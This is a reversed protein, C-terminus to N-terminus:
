ESTNGVGARDFLVTKLQNYFTDSLTRPLLRLIIIVTTKYLAGELYDVRSRQLLLSVMTTRDDFQPTSVVIQESAVGLGLAAAAVRSHQELEGSGFAAGFNESLVTAAKHKKTKASKTSKSGTPTESVSLLRQPDLDSKEASSLSFVNAIVLPALDGSDESFNSPDLMPGTSSTKGAKTPKQKKAKVVDAKRPIKELKDVEEMEILKATKKRMQFMAVIDTIM